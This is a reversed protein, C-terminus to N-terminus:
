ALGGTDITGFYAGAAIVVAGGGVTALAEAMAQGGQQDKIALGFRVGGWVVLGGGFLQVASVAMGLITSLMGTNGSAMNPERERGPREPGSDTHACAPEGASDAYGQGRM